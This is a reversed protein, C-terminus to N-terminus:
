YQNSSKLSDPTLTWSEPCTLLGENLTVATRSKLFRYVQCTRASNCLANPGHDLVAANTDGSPPYMRPLSTNSGSVFPLVTPSANPDVVKTAPFPRRTSSLM